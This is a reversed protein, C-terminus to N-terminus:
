SGICNRGHDMRAQPRRTDIHNPVLVFTAAWDLAMISANTADPALPHGKCCIHFRLPSTQRHFWHATGGSPEPNRQSQLNGTLREPSLAKGLINTPHSPDGACASARGAILM